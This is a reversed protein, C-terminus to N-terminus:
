NERGSGGEGSEVKGNVNTNGRRERRIRQYVKENLLINGAAAATTATTTTTTTTTPLITTTTTTVTKM